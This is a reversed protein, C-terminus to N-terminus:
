LGPDVFLADEFLRNAEQDHPTAARAPPKARLVMEAFPRSTDHKEDQVTTIGNAYTQQRTTGYVGPLEQAAAPPAVLDHRQVLLVAAFGALLGLLALPRLLRSKM